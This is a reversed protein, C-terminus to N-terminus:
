PYMVGVLLAGRHQSSASTSVLVRMKGSALRHNAIKRMIGPLQAALDFVAYSFLPANVPMVSNTILSSAVVM